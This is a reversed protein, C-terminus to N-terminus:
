HHCSEGIIFALPYVGSTGFANFFAFVSFTVYDKSLAQGIGTISMFLICFIFILRRGYKDALFGFVGSGVVIGAFHLTGILALMWLNESCTIKWQFYFPINLIISHIRKGNSVDNVITRENPDFVWENCPIRHESFWEAPCENVPASINSPTEFAFRLCQEPNFIGNITTGPVAHQVWPEEYVPQEM